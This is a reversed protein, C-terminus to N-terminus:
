RSSEGAVIHPNPVEALEIYAAEEGTAVLNRELFDRIPKLKSVENPEERCPTIHCGGPIVRFEVNGMRERDRYRQMSSRVVSDSEGFSILTPRGWNRFRDIYSTFFDMSDMLYGVKYELDYLNGGYEDRKMMVNYFYERTEEDFFKSFEDVSVTLHRLFGM